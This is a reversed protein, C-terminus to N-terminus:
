AAECDSPLQDGASAPPNTPTPDPDIKYEDPPNSRFDQILWWSFEGVPDGYCYRHTLRAREGGCEYRALTGTTCDARVLIM